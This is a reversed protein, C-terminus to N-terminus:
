SRCFEIHTYRTRRRACRSELEIVSPKGGDRRNVRIVPCGSNWVVHRNTVAYPAHLKTRQGDKIIERSVFFRTGGLKEHAEAEEHRPYLFGVTHMLENPIVPM